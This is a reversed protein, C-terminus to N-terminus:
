AAKERAFVNHLEPFAQPARLLVDNWDIGKPDGASISFQPILVRAQVGMEWARKKLNNAAQLGREVGRKIVDKDGFILLVKVEPPLELSEMLGASHTAWTPLKYVQRISLATEIGEAVLLVPGPPDLRIAGGSITWGEPMATTKKNDSLPAKRGDPTLYTRHLAVPQRDVKYLKAICAPYSGKKKYNGDDDKEYYALSPVFRIYPSLHTIGRSRLYNRAVEADPHKLSLSKSWSENLRKAHLEPDLKKSPKTKANLKMLNVPRYERAPRTDGPVEIRLYKAVEIFTEEWTWDKLWRLVAFGDHLEKTDFDNHVAVGTEPATKLLRFKTKGNGTKPCPVQRGTRFKEIADDLEHALASYIEMWRGAAKRRVDDFDLRNSM